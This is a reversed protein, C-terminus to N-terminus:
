IPPLTDRFSARAMMADGTRKINARGDLLASGEPMRALYTMIPALFLDPLMPRDALLFTHGALQADILDLQRRIDVLAADITTRDPKGDAGRPFIYHLVYRRIAADFVYNDIVGIWQEMAARERAGAPQLSPGPFAEDVYRAIASTEYVTFDGHRFAPVKGFPHLARIEPTNPAMTKFDYAVGKEHCVMRATRTYTSRPDGYITVAAM